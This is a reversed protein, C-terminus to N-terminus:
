QPVLLATGPTKSRHAIISEELFDLVSRKQLRLTRVVTLIREAFRCGSEGHCGFANKRWPVGARLMREAHNNTPEVGEVGAFLWLARYLKLVDDRFARVKADARGSGRELAELLEAVAPGPQRQLAPRDILGDRYEWWLTFVDEVVASGVDGIAQGEGGRDGCKRFDRKLHAWCIQGQELPLRDYGWWRDSILIATIAEGLLAQLGAAGRHAHIVFYAVTATAATWLWRRAGAQKWGTEDTNKVPAQGVADRAQDHAPALAVSTQQELTAVTGLSVPVDFVAEVFERVLRKGLRFRGSQYSMVAALRPGIVHSRVEAPITAGNLQGCGPCIRAHAQHETVIAALPPLEAVQHWAPEPDNPDPEVPLVLQCGTCASPRYTQILNVREAPLRVRHRGRHGTQGGPKRGTPTKGPLKPAHLPNASPPTPSSSSNQQLKLLLEKLQTELTAIRSLATGLQRRLEACGPRDLIPLAEPLNM